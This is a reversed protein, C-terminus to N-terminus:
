QEVVIHEESVALDNPVTITVWFCFSCACTHWESNM